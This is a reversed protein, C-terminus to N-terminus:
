SFVYDVGAFDENSLRRSVEKSFPTLVVIPIDPNIAKLNKAGEFTESLDIGPMM